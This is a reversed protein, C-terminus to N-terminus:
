WYSDIGENAAHRHRKWNIFCQMRPLHIKRGTESDQTSIDGACFFFFFFVLRWINNVFVCYCLSKLFVKESFSFIVLVNRFNFFFFFIECFILMLRLKKIDFSSFKLNDSILNSIVGVNASWSLCWGAYAFVTRSDPVESRDAMKINTFNM